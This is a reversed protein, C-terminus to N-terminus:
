CISTEKVVGDINDGALVEKRLDYVANRQQNMVDDYELLHKRIDFNQGEVKKQANEISRSVMGAEIPEDDPVNLRTMIQQIKEGNFVALNM